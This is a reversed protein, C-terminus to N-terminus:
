CRVGDGDRPGTGAQRRLAQLRFLMPFYFVRMMFDKWYINIRRWFDSFSSALYFRHHTEPLNFGFLQLLGVIFHFHGSIRLYLGYNSLVFRALEGGNDVELPTLSLHHYISGTSCCISWVM